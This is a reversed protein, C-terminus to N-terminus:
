SDNNSLRDLIDILKDVRNEARVNEAYYDNMKRSIEFVREREKRLANDLEENKSLLNDIENKGRLVEERIKSVIGDFDVTSPMKDGQIFAKVLSDSVLDMILVDDM